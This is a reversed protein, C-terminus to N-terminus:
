KLFQNRYRSPSTGTIKQFTKFFHAYSSFSLAEQVQVVSRGERLLEQATSIKQLMLYHGLSVHVNNKFMRALYDPHLYFHAALDSITLNESVHDQVYALIENIRQQIPSTPLSQEEGMLPHRAMQSLQSLFQFFVSLAEPASRDPYSLLEHFLRILEKKQEGKPFTFLPSTSNKLYSFRSAGECLASDLWSTHINLIYREYPIGTEHYLQHVCFTPIILLTGAPVAFVKDNLLVDPLDTLTYYLEAANHSHPGVPYPAKANRYAVDYPPAVLYTSIQREKTNAM